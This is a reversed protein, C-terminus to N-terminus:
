AVAAVAISERVVGDLLWMDVAESWDDLLDLIRWM